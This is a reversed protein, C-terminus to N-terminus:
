EELGLAVFLKSRETEFDEATMGGAAHRESLVRFKEMLAEEDPGEDPDAEDRAEKREARRARKANQKQQKARERQRKEFSQHGSAM